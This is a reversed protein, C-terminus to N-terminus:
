NSERDERCLVFWADFWEFKGNKLRRARGISVHTSLGRMVDVMGGYVLRGLGSENPRIAPWADPKSPPIVTYDIAVEGAAEEWDRAVYYGPGTWNAVFPTNHNYGYLQKKEAGESGDAPKCFRKQFHTFAPLTNKGHHIVEKLADTGAPVYDDVTVPKFGKLAEYLRSQTDRDWGRITALRGPHGLGDLVDRLRNLDLPDLLVSVDM